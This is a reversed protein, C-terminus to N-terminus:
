KAARKMCLCNKAGCGICDYRDKSPLGPRIPAENFGFKSFFEPIATFLYVDKKAGKLVENLLRSAYGKGRQDETVAVSGLFYLDNRNELQACGVVRGEELAVFFDKYELAPYYMDLDNLIKLVGEKDADNARRIELM